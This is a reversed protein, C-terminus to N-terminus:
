RRRGRPARVTAVFLVIGPLVLLVRLLVVFSLVPLTSLGITKLAFLIGADLTGIAGFGVPMVMALSAIAFVYAAQPVSLDLGVAHSAAWWGAVEGAWMGLSLLLPRVGRYRLGLLPELLAGLFAAPVLREGVVREIASRLPARLAMAIGLALVLSAAAVAGLRLATFVGFRSAVMGTLVVTLLMVHCAIDLAREAILVGVATQTSVREDSAAALGVRIADGARAPLFVNGFQGLVVPRYSIVRSISPVGSRLLLSWRECAGLMSAGYALVAIALAAAQVSDSPLQPM